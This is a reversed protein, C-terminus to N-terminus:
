PRPPRAGDRGRLIVSLRELVPGLEGEWVLMAGCDMRRLGWTRDLLWTEDGRGGAREIRIVVRPGNGDRAFHELGDVVSRARGHAGVFDLASTVLGLEARSTGDSSGVVRKFGSGDGAAAGDPSLLMGEPARASASRLSVEIEAREYASCGAGLAVAGLAAAVGPLAQRRM